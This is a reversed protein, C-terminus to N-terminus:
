KPAVSILGQKPTWQIVGDEDTWYIISNAALFHDRRSGIAIVGQPKLTEWLKLDINKPNTILYGKSLELLPPDDAHCDGLIYFTNEAVRLEFLLPKEQLIQFRINGIKKQEFPQLYHSDDQNIGTVYEDEIKYRNELVSDVILDESKQPKVLADIESIGAQDLFSFLSSEVSKELSSEFVITKGNVQAILTPQDGAAFVVIKTTTYHKVVLFSVFLFCLGLGLIKSQRQGWKTLWISLMIGYIIMLQSWHLSAVSLNSAPLAVVKEVLWLMASLPFGVLYAIAGGLIPIFLGIAGSLMGGLSVIAIPLSFLISLPISYTAIVNFEYALLPLIWLSAAMPIAIVTAITPPVFDLKKQIPDLTTLLGFTALFSLQFGLDWIWLPNYLLLLTAALLLLSLPKVQRDLVLATLGAGGMLAARLISPQFGTLLVYFSLITVGAYFQMKVTKKRTLWQTFGLLLSVHFGSAAVTYALGAKVWLHYLSEPLDVVKQGLVMASLLTAKDPDLFRQHINIIKERVRSIGFSSSQSSLIKWSKFGFFANNKQLYKAFDFSWPDKPSKPQYLRGQLTANDGAKIEQEIEDLTIYLKEQIPFQEFKTTLIETTFWFTQKGTSKTRPQSAIKGSIEIPYKLLTAEEQTLQFLPSRALNPTRFQFYSVALLAILGSNLVLQARMQWFHRPLIWILLGTLATIAGLVTVWQLVTPNANIGGWLCTLFLGLVYGFCLIAGHNINM